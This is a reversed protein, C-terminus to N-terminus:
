DYLKIRLYAVGPEREGFYRFLPGPDEDWNLEPRSFTAFGLLEGFRQTREIFERDEPLVTAPDRKLLVGVEMRYRSWDYVLDRNPWGCKDLPIRFFLSAHPPSKVFEIDLTQQVPPPVPFKPVQKATSWTRVVPRATQKTRVM